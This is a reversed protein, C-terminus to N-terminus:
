CYVSIEILNGDPDRLYISQMSGLAGTRQVIGLGPELPANKNQLEQYITQINGDAIICFDQSGYVLEKAVPFATAPIAHLNLKCNGFLLSINESEQKLTMGMINVYFDISKQVNSVNLVLHDIRNLNM